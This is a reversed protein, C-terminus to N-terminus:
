ARRDRRGVLDLQGMMILFSAGMALLGYPVASQLVDRLSQWDFFAPHAIGFVALVAILAILVSNSEAEILWRVVGESGLRRVPRAPSLPAPPAPPEGARSGGTTAGTSEEADRSELGLRRSEEGNAM